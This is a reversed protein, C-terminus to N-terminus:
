QKKLSLAWHKVLAVGLHGFDVIVPREKSAEVVDQM